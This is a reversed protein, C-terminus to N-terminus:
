QKSKIKKKLPEHLYRFYYLVLLPIFIVYTIYETFDYYSLRFYDYFEFGDYYYWYGTFPYFKDTAFENGYCLFITNLVVWIIYLFLNRKNINPFVNDIINTINDLPTKDKAKNATQGKVLEQNDQEKGCHNCFKSDDAIEKGCHKCYM